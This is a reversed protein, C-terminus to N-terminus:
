SCDRKAHDVNRSQIMFIECFIDLSFNSKVHDVKRSELMPVFRFCKQFVGSLTCDVLIKECFCTERVIVIKTIWM